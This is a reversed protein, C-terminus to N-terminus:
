HYCVSWHMCTSGPPFLDETSVPASEQFGRVQESEKERRKRENEEKWKKEIDFETLM